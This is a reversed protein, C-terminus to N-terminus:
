GQLFLLALASAWILALKAADAVLEATTIKDRPRM